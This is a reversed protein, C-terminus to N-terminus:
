IGKEPVLVPVCVCLHKDSTQCLCANIFGKVATQFDRPMHSMVSALTERTGCVKISMHVGTDLCIGWNGAPNQEQSLFCGVRHIQMEIQAKVSLNAM